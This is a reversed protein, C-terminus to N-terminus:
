VAEPYKQADKEQQAYEAETCNVYRVRVIREKQPKLSSALLCLGCFLLLFAGSGIGVIDLLIKM